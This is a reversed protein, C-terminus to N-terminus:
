WVASMPSCPQLTFTLPLITSPTCTKTPPRPPASARAPKRMRSSRGHSWSGSTSSRSTRKKGRASRLGSASGHISAREDREDAGAGAVRLEDRQLREPAQALGVDHDVIAEDGGRQEGLRRRVGLDDVGALRGAAVAHALRLDVPEEDITRAPVGSSGTTAPRSPSM